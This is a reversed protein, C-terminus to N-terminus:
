ECYSRKVKRKLRPSRRTPVSAPKALTIVPIRQPGEGALKNRLPENSEHQESRKRKSSQLKEEPEESSIELESLEADEVDSFESSWTPTPSYPSDVEHIIGDSATDSRPPPLNSPTMNIPSKNEEGPLSYESSSNASSSSMSGSSSASDHSDISKIYGRVPRRGKHPALDILEESSSAPM